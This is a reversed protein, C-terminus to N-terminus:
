LRSAYATKMDDYLSFDPTATRPNGTEYFLAHGTNWAGQRTPEWNFTGIGQRGALHLCRRKIERQM